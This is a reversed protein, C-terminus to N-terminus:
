RAQADNAELQGEGSMKQRDEDTLPKAMVTVMYQVKHTLEGKGELDLLLRVMKPRGSQTEITEGNEDTEPILVSKWGLSQGVLFTNISPDEQTAKTQTVQFPVNIDFGEITGNEGFLTKFTPLKYKDVKAKVTQGVKHIFGAVVGNGGIKVIRRQIQQENQAM